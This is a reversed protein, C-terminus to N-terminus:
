YAFSSRDIKETYLTFNNTWEDPLYHNIKLDSLGGKFRQEIFEQEAISLGFHNFMFERATLPVEQILCQEVFTFNEKFWTKYYTNEQDKELRSLVQEITIHETEKLIWKAWPFIIPCGPFQCLISLAKLKVLELHTKHSSNKYQTSSWGLKTLMKLPDTLNVFSQDDFICGCFSAQGIEDSQEFKIIFGLQTYIHEYKQINFGAPVSLLGDDGEFVARFDIKAIKCIYKWVFYNIMGNGISTTVEGSARGSCEVVLNPFVLINPKKIINLYKCVEQFSPCYELMHEFICHEIMLMSKSFSSEFSTYDTSYYTHGYSFLKDYIYKPRKIAPVKKVFEPMKFLELEAAHIFPGLLMKFADSRSMIARCHKTQDYFEDKIFSKCHQLRFEEQFIRYEDFAQRYKEKKWEPHDSQELYTQTSFDRIVDLPLIEKLEKKVFLSFRKLRKNDIDPCKRGIRHKVGRLQMDPGKDPKFLVANNHCPLSVAVCRRKGHDLVGPTKRIKFDTKHVPSIPLNHYSDTNSYGYLFHRIHDSM